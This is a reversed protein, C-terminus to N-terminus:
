SQEYKQATKRANKLFQYQQKKRESLADNHQRVLGLLAHICDPVYATFRCFHHKPVERRRRAKRPKEHM